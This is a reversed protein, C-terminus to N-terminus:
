RPTAPQALTRRRRGGPVREVARARGLHDEILLLEARLRELDKRVGRVAERRAVPPTPSLRSIM